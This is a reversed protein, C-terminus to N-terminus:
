SSKFIEKITILSILNNIEDQNLEQLKHNNLFQIMEELNNFKPAWIQEYYKRIIMETAVSDTIIDGTENRMIIIQTTERKLLKDMQQDYQYKQLLLNKFRKLFM